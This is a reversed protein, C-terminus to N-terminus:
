GIEEITITAGAQEHRACWYKRTTVDCVQRDDHWLGAETIGDLTGKNLNDIDPTHTHYPGPADDRLLHAYKGTRHHAKPRGIRYNITVRVPGEIAHEQSARCAESVSEKWQDWPGRPTYITAHKGRSTARPRPWGKPEGVVRITVARADSM